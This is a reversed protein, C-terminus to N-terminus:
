EELVVFTTPLSFVKEVTRVMEAVESAVTAHLELVTRDKRQRVMWLETAQVREGSASKGVAEYELILGDGSGLYRKNQVQIGRQGLGAVLNAAITDLHSLPAIVTDSPRSLVSITVVGSASAMRMLRTTGSGLDAAECDVEWTLPPLFVVYRHSRSGVAFGKRGGLELPGSKDCGKALPGTASPGKAPGEAHPIQVDTSSAGGASAGCGSALLSAALLLFPGRPRAHSAPLM